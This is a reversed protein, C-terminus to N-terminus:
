KLNEMLKMANADRYVLIDTQPKYDFPEYRQVQVAIYRHNEAFRFVIQVNGEQQRKVNQLVAFNDNDFALLITPLDNPNYYIRDKSVVSGTEKDIFKTRQWILMFLAVSLAIVGAFVESGEVLDNETFYFLHFMALAFIILIISIIISTKNTKKVLEPLQFDNINGSYTTTKM